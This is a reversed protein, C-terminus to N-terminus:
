SPRCESGGTSNRSTWSTSAGWAIGLGAVLLVMGIFITVV